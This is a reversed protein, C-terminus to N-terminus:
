RFNIPFWTEEKDYVMISVINDNSIRSGYNEKKISNIWITGSEGNKWADYDEKDIVGFYSSESRGSGVVINVYYCDKNDYGILNEKNITNDYINLGIIVIFPSVLFLFLAIVLGVNIIKKIKNKM